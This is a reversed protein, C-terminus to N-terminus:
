KTYITGHATAESSEVETEVGEARAKGGGAGRSVSASKFMKELRNGATASFVSLDIESESPTATTEMQLRSKKDALTAAAQADLEKKKDEHAKEKKM